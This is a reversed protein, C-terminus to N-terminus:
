PRLKLEAVTINDMYFKLPAPNSANYGRIMFSSDGTAFKNTRFSAYVWKNTQFGPGFAPNSGVAWDTNPNWYIRLDPLFGSSYNGLDTVYVWVGIEYTKGAQTPFRIFQGTLDRHGVIMGDNAAIEIYASKAGSQAQTPSINFTFGDWDPGWGLYQWNGNLSNEFSYDYNSNALINTKIIDTLIRDTFGSAAVADLTSLNGPTYSVKVIDDNYYPQDLKILVVNGDVADVSVTNINTLLNSGGATQISASFNAKNITAPDMERSFELGIVDSSKEFVRDLTVPETSPVVKIFKSINVTDADFPRSRSAIFQLNHSGLKSYRIDIDGTPNKVQEPKGGPLNWTVNKPAGKSTYSLRVYKSAIIENEANDSMNLEAGTTGDENIYYAKLITSIPELVTVVITTDLAVGDIPQTSDENPYVNGKFIQSLVVNYVGPEHFIGKVVDKGSTNGEEGAITVVGGEPFTWVRSKVGRSIDGFDIHGGPNITNEYNMESTVIARHNPEILAVSEEDNCDVLIISTFFILLLIKINKM